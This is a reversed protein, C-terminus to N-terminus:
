WGGSRSGSASAYNRDSKRGKGRADGKRKAEMVAYYFGSAEVKMVAQSMVEPDKSKIADVLSLAKNFWGGGGRQAQAALESERKQKAELRTAEEANLADYEAAVIGFKSEMYAHIPEVSVGGGSEDAQYPVSVLGNLSKMHAVIVQEPGSVLTDSICWGGGGETSKFAFLEKNSTTECEDDDVVPVAQRFVSDGQADTGIKWYYGPLSELANIIARSWRGASAQEM